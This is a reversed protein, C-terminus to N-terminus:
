GKPAVIRVATGGAHPGTVTLYGGVMALLTSHLALGSGSRGPVASSGGADIGVGNDAITLALEPEQGSHEELTIQLCLPRDAKDEM